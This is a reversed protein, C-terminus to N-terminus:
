YTLLKKKLQLITSYSIVNYYPEPLGMDRQDYRNLVNLGLKLINLKEQDECCEVGFSLKDSYNKVYAGLKTQVCLVDMQYQLTADEINIPLSNVICIGLVMPDVTGKFEYKVGQLDICSFGLYYPTAPTQQTDVITYATPSNVDCYILEDVILTLTQITGASDFLTINLVNGISVPSSTLLTTSLVNETAIVIVPVTDTFDSVQIAFYYDDALCNEYCQSITSFDTITGPFSVPFDPNATYDTFSTTLPLSLGGPFVTTYLIEAGPLTALLWTDGANILALLVPGGGVEIEFVYAILNDQYRFLQIPSVNVTFTFPQSNSNDIGSITIKQSCNVM